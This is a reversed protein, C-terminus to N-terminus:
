WICIKGKQLKILKAVFEQQEREELLSRNKSDPHSADLLLLQKDFSTLAGQEYLEVLRKPTGVAMCAPKQKLFTIQDKLKLHKAFCKAIPQNDSCPRLAAILKTARIAAGTVLIVKPADSRGRKVVNYKTGLAKLVFDPLSAMDRPPKAVHVVQDPQLTFAETDGPLRSSADALSVLREPTHTNSVILSHGGEAVYTNLALTATEASTTLATLLAQQKEAYKNAKKNRQKKRSARKSQPQGDGNATARKGSPKAASTDPDLEVDEDRAESEQTAGQWWDDNLDDAM